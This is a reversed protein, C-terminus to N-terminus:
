FIRKLRIFRKKEQWFEMAIRSSNIGGSTKTVYPQPSHHGTAFRWNGAEAGDLDASYGTQAPLSPYFVVKKGTKRPKVGNSEQCALPM